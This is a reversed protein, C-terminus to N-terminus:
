QQEKGNIEIELFLFGNRIRKEDSSNRKEVTEQSIIESVFNTNRKTKAVQPKSTIELFLPMFFAV